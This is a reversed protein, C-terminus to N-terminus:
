ASGIAAPSRRAQREGVLLASSSGREKKRTVV